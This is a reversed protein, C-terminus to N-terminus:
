EDKFKDACDLPEGANHEEDRCQIFVELFGAEVVAFVGEHTAKM